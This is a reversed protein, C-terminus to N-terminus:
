QMIIVDIRRNKARGDATQNSAVPRDAGYGMSQIQNAPILLSQRLYQMVAFARKESLTVNAAADGSADTHGEVVLLSGPFLQIVKKVKELLPVHDDQIDSKGIAFSLGSLRLVIDNSSNFLVEGESPNLMTKASRFKEEKEVRGSLEGSMAEHEQTLQVFEAQRVKLQEALSKNESLLETIKDGVLRAMEVPTGGSATAGVMELLAEIQRTVDASLTSMQGSLEAKEGQLAGIYNILTDAAALSGQDFPLHELGIAEGVRNMQIEYELMLKEWAQDNRKLSRVSLGINSAHRAEYEARVAEATAADRDYRDATILSNAKERASKARDMTALAFKPADDVVAKAILRDAEGLIDARIAEIEAYNFLPSSKEAEKLAGKVDGSEVKASAKMFQTEAKQYLEPVLVVAKAKIAKDRPPLYVELIHKAQGTAKVANETYERAEAVYKDISKQKKNLRISKEAEDFKKQAKEWVKPAFVPAEIVKASDRLTVLEDFASTGQASGTAALALGILIALVSSRKGTM